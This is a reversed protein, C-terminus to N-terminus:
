PLLAVRRMGAPFLRPLAGDHHEVDIGAQGLLIQRYRDEFAALGRGLTKWPRHVGKADLGHHLIALRKLGPGGMKQALVERPGGFDLEM